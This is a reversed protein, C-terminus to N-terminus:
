ELRLVSTDNSMSEANKAAAFVAIQGVHQAECKQQDPYCVKQKTILVSMLDRMAVGGKPAMAIFPMSM